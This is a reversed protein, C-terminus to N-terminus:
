LYRSKQLSPRRIFPIRVLPFRCLLGFSPHRDLLHWCYLYEIIGIPCELIILYGDFGIGIAFFIITTIELSWVALFINFAMKQVLFFILVWLYM